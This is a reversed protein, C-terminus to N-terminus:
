SGFALPWGFWYLLPDQKGNGGKGVMKLRWAKRDCWLPLRGGRNGKSLTSGGRRIKGERTGCRAFPVFVALKRKTELLLHSETPSFSASSDLKNFLVM